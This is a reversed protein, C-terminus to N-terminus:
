PQYKKIIKNLTTPNIVTINKSHSSKVVYPSVPASSLLIGKAFDFDIKKIISELNNGKLPISRCFIVIINNSKSYDVANRLFKIVVGIKDVKSQIILVNDNELFIHKITELNFRSLLNRAFAYFEDVSFANYDMLYSMSINKYNESILRQAIDRYKPNIAHIIRLQDLADSYSKENEYCLALSYHLDLTLRNEVEILNVATKFYEIAHKYNLKEFCAKGCYYACKFSLKTDHKAKEFSKVAEEYDGIQFCSYGLVYYALYFNQKEKLVKQLLNTCLEYQKSDCYYRALMTQIYLDDARERALHTFVKGAAEVRKIDLYIIGIQSMVEHNKPKIQLAKKFYLFAKKYDDKKYYYEGLSQLIDFRTNRDLSGIESLTNELVTLAKSHNKQIFYIEALVLSNTGINKNQAILKELYVIAKESKKKEILNQIKRNKAIFKM